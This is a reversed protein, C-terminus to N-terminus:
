GPPSGGSDGLRQLEVNPGGGWYAMRPAGPLEPDRGRRWPPSLPGSSAGSRGVNSPKIQFSLFYVFYSWHRFFTWVRFNGCSFVAAYQNWETFCLCVFFSVFGQLFLNSRKTLQETEKTKWHLEEILSAPTKKKTTSLPKQPKKNSHKFLQLIFM